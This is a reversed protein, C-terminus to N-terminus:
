SSEGARRDGAFTTGPCHSVKLFRPRSARLGALGLGLLLPSLGPDLVSRHNSPTISESFLGESEGAIWLPPDLSLRVNGDSMYM